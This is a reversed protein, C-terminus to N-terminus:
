PLAPERDRPARQLWLAALVMTAMITPTRAPYDVISSLLVLLLISSGLRARIVMPSAQNRWARWSAVSWWLVAAVLLILAPLGGDMVIELLDDHARNFYTPKLLDFTERMRFLPDFGGFGAGAPFYSRTMDIVLPAARVRMDEGVELSMIRTVSRARDASISVGIVSVLVAAVALLGIARMRGALRWRGRWGSHSAILGASLGLVGLMMGARSGSALIMLIFMLVLGGGVPVRWAWGSQQTVVWVPVIACGIAMFLAFHNRNAFLGSTMDATENILPNDFGGTSFQLLGIFMCLVILILLLAPLQGQDKEGLRRASLWVAFPVTLSLAANMTAGPVISWPRWVPEGETARLFVSRGPLASWLAPPLPVLQFVVLALAAILLWGVPGPRQPESRGHVLAAVAMAICAAGRVVAQGLMDARSAGGAVLIVILLIILILM